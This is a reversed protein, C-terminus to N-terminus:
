VNGKRFPTNNISKDSITLLILLLPLGSRYLMIVDLFISRFTELVYVDMRIKFRLTGSESNVSSRKM